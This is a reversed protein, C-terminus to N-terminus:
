QSYDLCSKYYLCCNDCGLFCHQKFDYVQVEWTIIQILLIGVILLVEVVPAVEAKAVVVMSFMREVLIVFLIIVVIVVIAEGSM